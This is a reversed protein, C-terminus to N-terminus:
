QERPARWVVITLVIAAALRMQTGLLSIDGTPAPWNLSWNADQNFLSIAAIVGPAAMFGAAVVLVLIALGPRGLGQITEPVKLANPATDTHDDVQWTPVAIVVESAVITTESKALM